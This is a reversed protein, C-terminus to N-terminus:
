FQLNDTEYQLIGTMIIAATECRLIRGGLTVKQFGKKEFLSKEENSFDGEPGVAFVINKLNATKILNKLNSKGDQSLLLKLSNDDRCAHKETYELLTVPKEIFPVFSRKSQKSAEAAIKDLRPLKTESIKKISHSSIVPVIQSIGLETTKQIIWELKDSKPIGQLLTTKICSENQSDIEENVEIHLDSPSVQKITAPFIKKSNNFLILKDNKKLRLVDIIYHYLEGDLCLTKNIAV